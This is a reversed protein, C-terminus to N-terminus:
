CARYRWGDQNERQCGLPYPLPLPYEYYIPAPAYPDGYPYGRYYFQGTYYYTPGFVGTPIAGTAVGRFATAPRWGPRRTQAAADAIMAGVVAAAIAVTALSRMRYKGLNSISVRQSYVRRSRLVVDSRPPQKSFQGVTIPIRREGPPGGPPLPSFRGPLALEQSLRPM